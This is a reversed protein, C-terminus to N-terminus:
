WSHVRIAVTVASRALGAWQRLLVRYGETGLLVRAAAECHQKSVERWDTGRQLCASKIRRANDM